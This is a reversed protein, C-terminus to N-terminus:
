ELKKEQIKDVNCKLFGNNLTVNIKDNQRINHVSNVIKGKENTVYGYGRNLIKLPSLNELKSISILLQKDKSELFSNFITNFKSYKKEFNFSEKEILYFPRVFFPSNRIKDLKAYAYDMKSNISFILRKKILMIKDSLVNGDPFVIEAAASPTPARLDAVFDAITFDTEHGVASVIPIRSNFIARALIEENFTWLEELSGGGRAIIIVDVNKFKNFTMIGKKVEIASGEGQVRVPYIVIKGGAFRRKAIKIIDQIVSGTPSTIVGIKKPFLPIQRKRDFMGENDLKKKLQEFALHLAGIGDPEISAVNLQYVGDKEYTVLKGKIVVRLGDELNFILNSAVMRYTVCKLLCNEDKLTFYIHGSSPKRVNSIEGKIILNSLVLDNEIIEKLYSSLESVTLIYRM